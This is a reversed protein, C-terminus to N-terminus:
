SVKQIRIQKTGSTTLIKCFIIRIWDINIKWNLKRNMMTNNRRLKERNNSNNKLKFYKNYIMRM